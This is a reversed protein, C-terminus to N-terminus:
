RSFGADFLFGEFARALQSTGGVSLNMPTDTLAAYDSPRPIKQGGSRKKKFRM